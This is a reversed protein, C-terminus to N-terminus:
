QLLFFHRNLYLMRDGAKEYYSSLFFEDQIRLYLAFARELDQTIGNKELQLALEYLYGAYEENNWDLRILDELLPIMKEPGENKQRLDIMEKLLEEKNRESSVASLTLEDVSPTLIVIKYRVGKDRGSSPDQKKFRLIYAGELTLPTFIFRSKELSQLQDILQFSNQEPEIGLFTWGGGPLELTIDSGPSLSAEAENEEWLTGSVPEPTPEPEPRTVIVPPPDPPRVVVVPPPTERVQPVEHVRIDPLEPIPWEIVALVSQPLILEPYAFLVSEMKPVPWPVEMDDAVEKSAPIELPVYTQIEKKDLEISTCSVLIILIFLFFTSRKM